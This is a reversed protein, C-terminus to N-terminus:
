QEEKLSARVIEIDREHNAWMATPYFIVPRHDQVEGHPGRQLIYEGGGDDEYFVRVFDGPTAAAVLRAVVGAAGYSQEHMGTSCRVIAREENVDLEIDERETWLEVLFSELAKWVDLEVGSLTTESDNIAAYDGIASLVKPYSEAPITLHFEFAQYIGM